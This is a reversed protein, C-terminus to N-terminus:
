AKPDPDANANEQNEDLAELATIQTHFKAALADYDAKSVFKGNRDPVCSPQGNRDVWPKWLILPTPMAM